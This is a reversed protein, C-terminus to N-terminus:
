KMTGSRKAVTIARLVEVRNRLEARESDTLGNRAYREELEGIEGAERRLHKAQGRSLQGSERGDRIDRYITGVDASTGPVVLVPAPTASPSPPGYVQGPGPLIGALAILTSALAPMTNEQAQPRCRLVPATSPGAKCGGDRRAPGERRPSAFPQTPRILEAPLAATKYVSPRPNSEQMRCWGQNRPM